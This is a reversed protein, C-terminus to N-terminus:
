DKGERGVRREVKVRGGQGSERGDRDNGGEGEDM